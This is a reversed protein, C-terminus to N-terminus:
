SRKSKRNVYVLKFIKSELLFLSFMINPRILLFFFNLFKSFINIIQFNNHNIVTQYKYWISLLRLNFTKMVNLYNNNFLYYNNLLISYNRNLNFINELRSFVKLLFLFNNIFM